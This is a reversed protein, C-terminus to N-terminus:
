DYYKPFQNLVSLPALRNNPMNEGLDEHFHYLSFWSLLRRDEAGWLDVLPVTTINGDELCFMHCHGMVFVIIVAM